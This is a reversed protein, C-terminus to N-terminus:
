KHVSPVLQLDMIEHRLDLHAAALVYGFMEAVWEIRNVTFRNDNWEIPWKNPGELPALRALDNKHIVVPVAIPDYHKCIGKCYHKAIQMEISNEDKFSYYGETTQLWHTISLPKNYAVYSDIRYDYQPAIHTPVEKMLHDGVPHPNGDTPWAGGMSLLRTIKGPQGVQKHWFVNYRSQWEFYQKSQVNFVTHYTSKTNPYGNIDNNLLLLQMEEQLGPLDHGYFQNGCNKFYEGNSKQPWAALLVECKNLYRFWRSSCKLSSAKCTMECTDGMKSKLFSVRGYQLDNLLSSSVQKGYVDLEIGNTVGRSRELREQANQETIIKKMIELVNKEAKVEAAARAHSTPVCPCLREASRGGLPAADCTPPDLKTDKSVFIEKTTKDYFPMDPYFAFSCTGEPFVKKAIDCRDLFVFWDRACVKGASQCVSDCNNSAVHFSIEGANWESEQDDSNVHFGKISSLTDRVTRTIWESTRHSTLGKEAWTTNSHQLLLAQKSPQGKVDGAGGGSNSPRGHRFHLFAWPSALVLLFVAFRVYLRSSRKGRFKSGKKSPRGM